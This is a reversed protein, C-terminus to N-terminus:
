RPKNFSNVNYNVLTVQTPNVKYSSYIMPLETCFVSATYELTGLKFPTDANVNVALVDEMDFYADEQHAPPATVIHISVSYGDRDKARVARVKM